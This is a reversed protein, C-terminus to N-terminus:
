GTAAAAEGRAELEVDGKKLSFRQMDSGYEIADPHDMYFEESILYRDKSLHGISVATDCWLRYGNQRAHLCFAIDENACVPSPHRFHCFHTIINGDEDRRMDDLMARTMFVMGFGIAYVQTLEGTPYDTVIHWWPNPGWEEVDPVKGFICPKTPMNNAFALAGCFDLGEKVVRDELRQYQAADFVMDDDIFLVHTCEEDMLAADVCEQRAETVMTNNITNYSWPIKKATFHASLHMMSMHHAQPILGLYNPTCVHVKM